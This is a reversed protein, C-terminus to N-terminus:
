KRGVSPSVESGALEQNNGHVTLRLGNWFYEKAYILM